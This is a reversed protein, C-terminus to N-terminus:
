EVGKGTITKKSGGLGGPYYPEWETQMGVSQGAVMTVCMTVTFKGVRFSHRFETVAETM